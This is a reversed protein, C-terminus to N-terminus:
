FYFQDDFGSHGERQKPHQSSFHKSLPLCHAQHVSPLGPVSRPNWSSPRFHRRRGHGAWGCMIVGGSVSRRDTTKSGYDADAFVELSIGVSTGKQYTIGFGSTGNIYALIGLASKWHIDKPTSCYRAVSRVANSIDSRTSIAFWKLGALERFPWSETEKDKDFKELKVEVRLPVSRVSTVRFKKVLEEVFSQQFITLTGKERDRSYRCGGYWKLEGLNKVPITRNLDVCLM